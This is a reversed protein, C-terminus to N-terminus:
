PCVIGVHQSHQNGLEGVSVPALIPVAVQCSRRLTSIAFGSFALM